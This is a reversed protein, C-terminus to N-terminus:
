EKQELYQTFNKVIETSVNALTTLVADLTAKSSKSYFGQKFSQVLNWVEKSKSGFTKPSKMPFNKEHSDWSCAAQGCYCNVSFRKNWFMETKQIM